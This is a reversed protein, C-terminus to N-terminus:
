KDDKRVKFLHLGKKGNGEASEGHKREEVNKDRKIRRISMRKKKTNGKSFYGYDYILTVCIKENFTLERVVYWGKEAEWYEWVILEGYRSVRGGIGPMDPDIRYNPNIIVADEAGPVIHELFSYRDAGISIDHVCYKEYSKDPLRRKKVKQKWRQIQRRYDAAAKKARSKEAARDTFIRDQASKLLLFDAASLELSRVLQITDKVVVERDSYFLVKGETLSKAAAAEGGDISFMVAGTDEDVGVHFHHGFKKVEAEVLYSM